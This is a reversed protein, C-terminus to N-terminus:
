QLSLKQNEILIDSISSFPLLSSSIKCFKSHKQLAKLMALMCVFRVCDVYVAYESTMPFFFSAFCFIPRLFADWSDTRKWYFM